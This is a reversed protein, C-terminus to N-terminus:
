KNSETYTKWLEFRHRDLSGTILAINFYTHEINKLTEVMLWTLKDGFEEITKIDKLQKPSLVKLTKESM